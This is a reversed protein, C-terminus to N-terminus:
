KTLEWNKTNWGSVVDMQLQTATDSSYKPPLLQETIPMMPSDPTNYLPKKGTVKTGSIIVKKSGIPVNRATYSGNEINTGSTPSQGDLPHFAISGKEIPVGDFTVTGSVDGLNPDGCGAGALAILAVAAWGWTAKGRAM